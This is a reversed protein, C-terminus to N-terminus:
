KHVYAREILKRASDEAGTRNMAIGISIPIRIPGTRWRVPKEAVMRLLREGAVRAGELDTEPLIAAFEEDGYRCSVDSRRSWERIIRGVDAMVFDWAKHGLKDSVSKFSDLDMMCLSLNQGHREARSRERDLTELFYRRSYLGTREDLAVMQSIKRRAMRIERKLKEKEIINRICGVVTERSFRSKTLYDQAGEQILRSAVMENGQGSLIVLPIDKNGAKMARIFDFGDGGPLLYELLVLDPSLDEVLRLGDGLTEARSLRIGEISNLVKEIRKFDEHAGEISLIHLNKEIAVIIGGEM